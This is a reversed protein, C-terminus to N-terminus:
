TFTGTVLSLVEPEKTCKREQDTFKSKDEVCRQSSQDLQKFCDVSLHFICPLIVLSISCILCCINSDNLQSQNSNIVFFPMKITNRPKPKQYKSTMVGAQHESSLSAWCGQLPVPARSPKQHKQRVWSPVLQGFYLPRFGTNSKINAKPFNQFHVSVLIKLVQPKCPAMLMGLQYQTFSECRTFTERKSFHGMKVQLKWSISFYKHIMPTYELAKANESNIRCPKIRM